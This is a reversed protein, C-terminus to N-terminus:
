QVAIIEACVQAGYVLLQLFSVGLELQRSGSDRAKLIRRSPSLRLKGVKLLFELKLLLRHLLILPRQFRRLALQFGADLSVLLEGLLQFRRLLAM